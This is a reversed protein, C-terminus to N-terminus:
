EAGYGCPVAGKGCVEPQSGDPEFGKRIYDNVEPATYEVRFYGRWQKLAERMFDDRDEAGGLKEKNYKALDRLDPDVFNVSSSRIDTSVLDMFDNILNDESEVPAESGGKGSGVRIDGATNYITNNSFRTRATNGADGTVYLPHGFDNAAKYYAVINNNVDADSNEMSIGYGLDQHVSDTLHMVVNDHVSTTVIPWQQGGDHGGISINLGNDELYNNYLEGGTRASFAYAASDIFLNNRYIALGTPDGNGPYGNENDFYIHKGRFHGNTHDAFYANDYFTNGEFLKLGNVGSIYIANEGQNGNITNNRFTVNSISGRYPDQSAGLLFATGFDKVHLGEFVWDGASVGSIWRFARPGRIGEASKKGDVSKYTHAQIFLDAITVFKTGNSVAGAFSSTGTLVKPRELSDGYSALLAPEDASRGSKRWKGLNQNTWTDGSRFLIWHPENNPLDNYLATAADISQCPTLSFDPNFPDASLSAPYASCASDDGLSDSVYVIFTDVSPIFTTWTDDTTIDIENGDTNSTCGSDNPFDILGDNDNDLGDSCAPVPQVVNDVNIIISSTATQGVSDRAITTITHVGDSVTTTDFSVSYPSSIDESGPSAGDLQFQVSAIFNDDTANALINITNSVTAGNVPSIISVSPPLDISIVGEVNIVLEDTASAGDNDIVTLVITHTGISLDLNLVAGSGLLINPQNRWEYGVITGDPDSSGSGDLTISVSGDSKSDIVTQDTGAIAVPAVNIDPEPITDIVTRIQETDLAKSYIRVDDILGDFPKSGAGQPQDGIAALVNDSTDIEGSKLMNAVLEGDRYLKMQNGDYTATVHQWQDTSLVGTPSILTTTGGNTKLRFRLKTKNIASVMWYHDHSSTGIAKSIFRADSIDFDDAKFWFAISMESGYVNMVGLDVRDNVGDFELAGGLLGQAPQWVSGNVLVGNNKGSKDIASLGNSEDLTWHSLLSPDSHPSSEDNLVTQIQDTNLATKYIRVDDILGDFPKSGAGAPQNGIAAAISSDSSIAGNKSTSAVLVGDSYLRMDHGDYTATVHQWRDTSAVGAPSILTTTKGKTKLRFRLKTKNLTSVMWYHDRSSTGTAKSIFRADSTDFDDAKFWFSISMEQGSLDIPGLDIRDNNGDFKLAGGLQGSSPQWVPANILTGSFNGNSDSATSGSSENLKWHSFLEADSLQTTASYAIHAFSLTSFIIPLILFNFYKKLYSVFSSTKFNEMQQDQM